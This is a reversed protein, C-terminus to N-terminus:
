GTRIGSSSALFGIKIVHAQDAVLVAPNVAQEAGLPM